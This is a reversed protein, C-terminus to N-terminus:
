KSFLILILYCTISYQKIMLLHNLWHSITQNITFFFLFLILLYNVGLVTEEMFLFSEFLLYNVGLVTEEMEGVGTIPQQTLELHGSLTLLRHNSLTDYM